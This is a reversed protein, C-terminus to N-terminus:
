SREEIIRKIDALQKHVGGHSFNYTKVMVVDGNKYVVSPGDKMDPKNSIPFLWKFIGHDLHIRELAELVKLSVFVTKKGTNLFIDELEQLHHLDLMEFFKNVNKGTIGTTPINLLEVFSIKDAFGSGLGMKAFNRHYLVGDRRRDLPYGDLLFPHHIEYKKWFSVGDDHYELIKAFFPKNTIEESYNADRGVILFSAFEPKQGQYPKEKFIENLKPSPHQGYM